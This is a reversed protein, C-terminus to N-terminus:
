DGKRMAIIAGDQPGAVLTLLNEPLDQMREADIMAQNPHLRKIDLVDFGAQSIMFELLALPYPRVHTPDLWFTNAGVVLNECNPTEIMLVGGPRVVRHAEMILAAVAAYPMHEVIHFATIAAASADPQSRLAAMANGVRANLGATVCIEVVQPSEDIGIADVGNRRLVDLWDGRGCGVDIVIANATRARAALIDPLYVQLRVEIEDVSGRFKEAFALATWEIAGAPMEPALRDIRQALRAQRLMSEALAERVKEIDHERMTALDRRTVENNAATQAVAADQDARAAALERQLADVRSALEQANRRTQSSRFIARLWRDFDGTASM